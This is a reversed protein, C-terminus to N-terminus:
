GDQPTPLRLASRCTGPHRPGTWGHSSPQPLRPQLGKRVQTTAPRQSEWDQGQRGTGRAPVHGPAPRECFAWEWRLAACGLVEGSLSKAAKSRRFCPREQNEGKVDRSLTRSPCWVGPAATPEHPGTVGQPRAAWQTRLASVPRTSRSRGASLVGGGEPTQHLPRRM